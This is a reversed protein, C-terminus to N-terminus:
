IEVTKGDESVRIQRAEVVAQTQQARNLIEQQSTMSPNVRNLAEM